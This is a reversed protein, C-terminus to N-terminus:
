RVTEAAKQRAREEAVEFITKKLVHIHTGKMGLSRTELVGASELKRMANVIVSRTIKAKDAIKSAVLLGSGGKLEGCILVIADQESYSLSRFATRVDNENREAEAHNTERMHLMGMGLITAAYEALLLDEDSFIADYKATVLTGIREVKGYIPVITTMKDQFICKKNSVFSCEQDVHPINALTERVRTMFFVYDDPFKGATLVQDRMVDCEFDGVLAHGMVKGDANAIYVNAHVLVSVLKAIEEYSANDGKRLLQNLQRTKELLEM